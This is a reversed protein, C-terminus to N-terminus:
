LYSGLQDLEKDQQQQERVSKLLSEGELDASVHLVIM